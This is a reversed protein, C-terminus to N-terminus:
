LRGVGFIMDNDDSSGFFILESPRVAPFRRKLYSREFTVYLARAWTRAPARM